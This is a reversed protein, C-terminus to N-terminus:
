LIYYLYYDSSGANRYRRQHNEIENVSNVFEKIGNNISEHSESKTEILDMISMLTKSCSKLAKSVEEWEGSTNPLIINNCPLVDLPKLLRNLQSLLNEM